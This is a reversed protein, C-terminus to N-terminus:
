KGPAKLLGQTKMWSAALTPWHTVPLDTPRLGYGHGGTPYVHLEASVGAKKLAQTYVLVNEVRVPDDEAMVLFTPPTEKNVTLEPSVAEGNKEPTLYAPYILVSFNPRCNLQDAADIPDYTHKDAMTSAAAALHGGASFGLVGIRQPDVHWEGAHARTLRMARQVDQLPAAYREQGPRAPVRYKLLIGTVGISNLWDCVETGELDLALIHYGGGPCVVAAAGTDQDASPRFVTLTPESVNGLRILRRGAVLGENPKTLDAEAPLPTTEGPAAGPWLRVPAMPEALLSIVTFTIATLWPIGRFISNM